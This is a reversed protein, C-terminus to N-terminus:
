TTTDHMFYKVFRTSLRQLEPGFASLRGRQLTTAGRELCM